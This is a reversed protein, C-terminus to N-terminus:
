NLLNNILTRYEPSGTYIDSMANSFPILQSKDWSECIQSWPHESPSFMVLQKKEQSIYDEKKWWRTLKSFFRPLQKDYYDADCGHGLMQPTNNTFVVILSSSSDTKWEARIAYALAELGNGFHSKNTPVIELLLDRINNQERPYDMFDTLLIAEEGDITYDKYTILKARVLTVPIPKSKSMALIDELIKTTIQKVPGLSSAMGHTADICFVVDITKGM